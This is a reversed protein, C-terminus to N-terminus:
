GFGPRRLGVSFVMGMAVLCTLLWSGGYSLFPLPLGVVPMLGMTMGVNIVVHCGLMAMLGAVLLRGFPDRSEAAIRFGRHLLLGYLLLIGAAGLFGAEEGVVSFIFDTHREPLFNLQNQTGAFWGRGWLLGSGIAIKSQVVTYGAGLPDLNPNAFVLLRARQYDHLLQWGIPAALFGIGAALWLWRAPLGWAFLMAGLLLLFLMATGLNPEALILATPVAVLGIPVLAATLRRPQDRHSGLYRTLALVTSIKALESPQFTLPGVALWRQAGGRVEGVVLVLGLLLLNLAYLLYAGELWRHYDVLMLVAAVAMGLALWVFQKAVFNIGTAMARQHSASVLTVLGILVLLWVVGLLPRDLGRWFRRSM